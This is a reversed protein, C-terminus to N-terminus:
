ADADGPRAIRWVDVARGLLPNLAQGARAMGLKIAVRQSRDNDPHIISILEPLGLPAFADDRAAAAAETALGRGWAARALRWGLEPREALQPMFTPYSVGAFGLLRGESGAERSEIALWGFGHEDWHGLARGLFTTVAADDVARNLHRTVESDANIAAMAPEDAPTWGRLRLRPTLIEAGAAAPLERGNGWPDEAYFRRV